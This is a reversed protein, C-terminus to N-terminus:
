IHSPTGDLRVIDRIRSAVGVRALQAAGDFADPPFFQVGKKDVSAPLLTLAGRHWWYLDPTLSGPGEEYANLGVQLMTQVAQVTAAATEIPHWVLLHRNPLSVLAGNAPTGAFDAFRVIQSAVFFTDGTLTELRAGGALPVPSREYSPMEAAMHETAISFLEDIPVNWSRASTARLDHTVTTPLDAVLVAVLEPSLTGTSGTGAAEPPM